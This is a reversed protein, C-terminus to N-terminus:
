QTINNKIVKYKNILTGQENVRESSILELNIDLKEEVVFNSGSGFIIPEITLWLEDILQQKLFSTAVQAGGVILMLEHGEKELRAFLKEPSEDTFDLQGSKEIGKYESPHSTMIVLLHKSSPKVPTVKYTNSGMVILRTDNWLKNFYQKDSQSSWIRVDPNGWRTIKGDLTSVFVLITKM